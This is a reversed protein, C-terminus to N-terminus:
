NTERDFYKSQLLAHKFPQNFIHTNSSDYFSCVCLVNQNSNCGEVAFFIFLYRGGQM